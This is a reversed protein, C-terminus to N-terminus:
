CRRTSWVKGAARTGGGVSSGFRYRARVLAEACTPPAGSAPAGAIAAHRRARCCRSPPAPRPAASRLCCRRLPASRGNEAVCLLSFFFSTGAAAPARSIVTRRVDRGSANAVANATRAGAARGARPAALGHGSGDAPGPAAEKRRCEGAPVVRAPVAAEGPPNGRESSLRAASRARRTTPSDRCPACTLVPASGRSPWQGSAARRGTLPRGARPM